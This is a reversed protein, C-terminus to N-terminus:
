VSEEAWIEAAHPDVEPKTVPPRSAPKRYLLEFLDGAVPWAEAELTAVIRGGDWDVRVLRMDAPWEARAIDPVLVLELKRERLLELLLRDALVLRKREPKKM